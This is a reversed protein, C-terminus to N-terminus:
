RTGWDIRLYARQGLGKSAEEEPQVRVIIELELNNIALSDALNTLEILGPQSENNSMIFKEITEVFNRDREAETDGIAEQEVMVMFSGGLNFALGGGATADRKLTVPSSSNVAVLVFPRLQNLEALAFVSGNAPEPLAEIHIRALLQSESFTNGDWNQLAHCRSIMRALCDVGDTMIGM